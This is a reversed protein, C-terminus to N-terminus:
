GLFKLRVTLAAMIFTQWHESDTNQGVLKYGNLVPVKVITNCARTVRSEQSIEDLFEPIHSKLPMTIRCRSIQYRFVADLLFFFMVYAAGGCSDQALVDRVNQTITETPWLKYSNPNEATWKSFCHNHFLPAASHAIPYGFLFFNKGSPTPFTAESSMAKNHLDVPQSAHAPILVTSIGGTLRGLQLSCLLKDYTQFEETLFPIVGCWGIDM